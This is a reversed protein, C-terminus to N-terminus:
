DDIEVEYVIMAEYCEKTINRDDYEIQAVQKIFSEKVEKYKYFAKEQTPYRGFYEQKCMFPNSCYVEFAIGRKDERKYVGIPMNGRAAEGKVFLNNINHPVLCCTEPSYIKNGKILIDKDIAWRKGNLWKDYNPQSQIWEYFNEYLLWEECCIVDKYTPYKIKETENFCRDLLSKWAKYEKVEKGNLKSPYKIGIIGVGYVSPYYPNKIEGSAFARYVTNIKIKYKDQFEVIINDSNIYEIIKMLSGQNNSKEEGLRKIKQQEIEKNSVGM